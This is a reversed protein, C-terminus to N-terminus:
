LDITMVTVTMLKKKNNFNSWQANKSYSGRDNIQLYMNKLCIEDFTKNYNCCNKQQNNSRHNLSDPVLKVCNKKDGKTKPDTNKFEIDVKIHLTM